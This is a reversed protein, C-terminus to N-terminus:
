NNGPGGFGGRGFGGAMGRLGDLMNDPFKFEKGTMQSWELLQDDDLLDMISRLSKARSEQIKAFAAQREELTANRNLGQGFQGLSDEQIKKIQEKQDDRLKLRGVVEPQGFAAAGESQIRLQRLRKMQEANLVKEVKADVGEILSEVKTRIEALKKEREEDSMQMIAQFNISGMLQTQVDKQVEDRVTMMKTKQEDTIKLETQVDPVMLLISAPMRLGRFANFMAANRRPQQQPQQPPQQQAFAAAAVSALLIGIPISRRFM